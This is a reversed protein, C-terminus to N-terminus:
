PNSTEPLTDFQSCEVVSWKFTFLRLAHGLDDGARPRRLTANSRTPQCLTALTSMNTPYSSNSARCSADFHPTCKSNINTGKSHRLRAHVVLEWFSLALVLSGFADLHVNLYWSGRAVAHLGVLFWVLALPWGHLLMQLVHIQVVPIGDIIGYVVIVHLFQSRLDKAVQIWAVGQSNVRGLTGRFQQARDRACRARWRSGQMWILLKWM